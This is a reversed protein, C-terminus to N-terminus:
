IVCMCLWVCCACLNCLHVITGTEYLKNNHTPSCEHSSRPACLGPAASQIHRCDLKLLHSRPLTVPDHPDGLNADKLSAGSPEQRM